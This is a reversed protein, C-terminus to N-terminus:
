GRQQLSGWGEVEEGEMEELEAEKLAGRLM